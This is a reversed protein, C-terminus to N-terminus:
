VGDYGPKIKLGGIRNKMIADAIKEHTHKILEERPASLLIKYESKFEKLLKNYEQWVSKTAVSKGILKAIVESLPILTHFDRANKPRFGLKRDALEEVRHAVGLTLPKKCVPCINNNKIAESPNMIVGCNRHGDVHYKGYAPNVEVTGSLGEFTRLARLIEKYNLKKLDLITAERGLRWPWFSHSDSFSVLGYNDLQSLRWNMPPDSSLGTELVHINKAQDKFCEHISDFGSNSGFMSFWPTWIHAPIVEIEPSINRLEYVLDHAPIKFIPRGDYDVRGHRKLYETIQEVVAFNPALIVVHVRRGKGAQTYILSIETQLIFPFGTTTKLVGSDDEVLHNKIEKIWEPHTFDSTGLVEVGKIKAWKEM